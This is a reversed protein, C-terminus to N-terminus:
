PRPRAKLQWSAIAVPTGSARRFGTRQSEQLEVSGLSALTRFRFARLCLPSPSTTSATVQRSTYHLFSCAGPTAYSGHATRPRQPMTSAFMRNRITDRHEMERERTERASPAYVANSGGVCSGRSTPRMERGVQQSFM